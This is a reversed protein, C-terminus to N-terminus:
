TPQPTRVSPSCRTVFSEDSEGTVTHEPAAISAGPSRHDVVGCSPFLRQASTVADPENKRPHYLETLPYRRRIAQPTCVWPKCCNGRAQIAVCLVFRALAPRTTADPANGRSSPRTAISASRSCACPSHHTEQLRCGGCRGAKQLTRVWRVGVVGDAAMGVLLVDLLGDEGTRELSRKRM